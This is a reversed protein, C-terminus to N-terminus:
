GINVGFITVKSPVRFLKIISWISKIKKLTEFYKGKFNCDDCHFYIYDPKHNYYISLINVLQYFKINAQKLFLLHVINPIISKNVGIQNDFGEFDFIQENIALENVQNKYVIIYNLYIYIISLMTFCFLFKTQVTSRIM